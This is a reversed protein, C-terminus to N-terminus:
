ARRWSRRLLWGIAGGAVALWILGWLLTPVGTLEALVAADSPLHPRDLVDSKIDLVVYLCSTMGLVRVLTRNLGEGLWRASAALGLGFLVGFAVAFGGRLYLVTLALIVAGVGGVLARARIRRWGAALLLVVGWALSGLYGASLTWFPSGGPCRCAGGQAPNLVIADIRGGTAVAAAGHSIEHLLVVFIKLPYVVPTDWLLWISGFYALFGLVFVLRSRTRRDM